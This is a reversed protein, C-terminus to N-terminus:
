VYQQNVFVSVCMCYTYEIFRSQGDTQCLFKVEMCAHHVYLACVYFFFFFQVYLRSIYYRVVSFRIYLIVVIIFPTDRMRANAYFLVFPGGLNGWVSKRIPQCTHLHIRRTEMQASWGFAKCRERKTHIISTYTYYINVLGNLRNFMDSKMTLFQVYCQCFFFVM